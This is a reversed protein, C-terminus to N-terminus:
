LVFHMYRFWPVFLLAASVLLTPTCLAPAFKVFLLSILSGEIKTAM